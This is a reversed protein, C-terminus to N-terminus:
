INELELDDNPTEYELAWLICNDWEEAGKLPEDMMVSFIDDSIYHVVGRLGAKAYFDPYKDVDRTLIVRTGVEFTKM